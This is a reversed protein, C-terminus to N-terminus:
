EDAYLSTESPSMECSSGSRRHKKRFGGEPTILQRKLEIEEGNVKLCIDIFLCLDINKLKKAMKFAETLMEKQKEVKGLIAHAKCAVLASLV